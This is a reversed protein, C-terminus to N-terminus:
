HTQALLRYLPPALSTATLAPTAIIVLLNDHIARQLRALAERLNQFGTQIGPYILRAAETLAISRARREFLKRALLEELGRIQHSLAAPTVHLEEAAKSFSLHRATAEFAGLANLPPMPRRMV